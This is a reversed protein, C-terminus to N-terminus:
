PPTTEIGTESIPLFGVLHIESGCGNCRIILEELVDKNMKTDIITYVTETEDDPSILTGCSPCTFDGEGDIQTLDVKYIASRKM